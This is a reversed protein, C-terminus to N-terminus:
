GPLGALTAAETAAFQVLATIRLAEDPEAGGAGALVQALGVHAVRDALALSHSSSRLIADVASRLDGTLLLAARDAQLRLQLAAGHLGERGISAPTDAGGVGFWDFVPAAVGGAKDIVSRTTFVRRSLEFITQLKALQDVGPVLTVLDVVTEAAGAYKGLTQYVSRSTGILNADFALIPHGCALHALEVALLFGLGLPELHRPGEQLHRAGVLLVSPEAPWASCGWAGEGRFVYADPVPVGLVEAAHELVARAEPWVAGDLPGLGRVLASRAPLEAGSVQHRLQELWGVGGPHLADLTAQGLHASRPLPAEEPGPGAGALLRHVHGLWRREARSLPVDTAACAEAFPEPHLFDAAVARRLAARAPEAHGAEAHLRAAERWRVWTPEEDAGPQMSDILAEIVGAAGSPDGLPGALVRAQAQWSEVDKPELARVRGYADAAVRHAGREEAHRALGRTGRASLTPAAAHEGEPDVALAETWLARAAEPDGDSWAWAAAQWRDLAGAGLGVARAALTRAASHDGEDRLARAAAAWASGADEAGAAERLAAVGRLARPGEEAGWLAAAEDLRGAAGLAAAWVEGPENPPWPLGPPPPCEPLGERVGETRVHAWGRDLKSRRAARRVAASRRRWAEARGSPDADDLELAGLAARAATRGDDLALMLQGLVELAAADAGRMAGEEVLDLARLGAGEAVARQAALGWRPPGPPCASLEALSRATVDALVGGRLSWGDAELRDRGSRAEHLVPGVLARAFGGDPGKAALVAGLDSVGIWLPVRKFSGAADNAPWTSATQVALLWRADPDCPVETCWWDPLEWAGEAALARGAPADLAPPAVGPGSPDQSVWGRILAAARGRTGARLPTSWDGISVADWTWGRELVVADARGVAAGWTQEAAAALLWAHADTLALWLPATHESGDPGVFARQGATRLAGLLEEGRQALMAQLSDPLLPDPLM